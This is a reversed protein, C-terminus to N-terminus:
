PRNQAQHKLWHRIALYIGVASLLLYGVLETIIRTKEERPVVAEACFPPAEHLSSFLFNVGKEYSDSNVLRAYEKIEYKSLEFAASGGYGRIELGDATYPLDHSTNYFALAASSVWVLSKEEEKPLKTLQIIVTRNYVSCDTSRMEDETLYTKFRPCFPEPTLNSPEKLRCIQNTKTDLALNGERPVLRTHQSGSCGALLVVCLALLKKMSAGARSTSTATRIYILVHFANHLEEISM